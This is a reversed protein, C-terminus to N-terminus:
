QVHYAVLDFYFKDLSGVYIMTREIAGIGKYCYLHCLYAKSFNDMKRFIERRYDVCSYTGLPVSVSTPNSNYYYNVYAITDPTLIDKFIPSGASISFVIKGNDNVICDASDREFRYVPTAQGLFNYEVLTHYNKGNILTDNKVVVSDNKWTQPMVNGSTDYETMKYVWYSGSKLPYYDSVAPVSPPNNIVPAAPDKKSCSLLFMVSLGLVICVVKNKM